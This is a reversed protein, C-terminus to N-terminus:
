RALSLFREKANGSGIMGWFDATVSVLPDGWGDDSDFWIAGVSVHPLQIGLGALDLHLTAGYGTKPEMDSFCASASLGAFWSREDGFYRVYGLGHVLLATETEQDGGERIDVLACLEPHLFVLQENPPDDWSYEGFLRPTVKSNVVAEWPYQSYGEELYNTWGRDISVALEHVAALLRSDVAAFMAKVIWCVTRVEVAQDITAYHHSSKIFLEGQDIEYEDAEALAIQTQRGRFYITSSIVPPKSKDVVDFGDDVADIPGRSGQRLRTLAAQLEALLSRRLREGNSVGDLADDFANSASVQLHLRELSAILGKETVDATYTELPGYRDVGKALWKCDEASLSSDFVCYPGANEDAEVPRYELDEQPRLPPVEKQAHAAGAMLCLLCALVFVRNASRM